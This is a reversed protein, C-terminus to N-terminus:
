AAGQAPMATRWHDAIDARRAIWVGDRGQIHDVFRELGAIRGPHGVVRPHLGVSMMRAGDRSELSMWGLCQAIRGRRLRAGHTARAARALASSGDAHQLELFRLM